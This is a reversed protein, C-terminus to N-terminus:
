VIRFLFQWTAWAMDFDIGEDSSECLGNVIPPEYAITTSLM